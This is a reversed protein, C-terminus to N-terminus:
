TPIGSQELSLPSEVSNIDVATIKYFYQTSTTLGTNSYSNTAVNILQVETNTTLSRKVNYTVAGPTATWALDNKTTGPIVTFGGPAPLAGITIDNQFGIEIETGNQFDLKATLLATGSDPNIFTVYYVGRHPNFTLTEYFDKLVSMTQTEIVNGNIDKIIAQPKATQGTFIGRVKLVTVHDNGVSIQLIQSENNGLVLQTGQLSTLM